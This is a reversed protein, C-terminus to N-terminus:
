CCTLTVSSRTRWVGSRSRPVKSTACRTKSGPHFGTRTARSTAWPTRRASTSALLGREGEVRALVKDLRKLTVDLNALNDLAQKSIKGSEFQELKRELQKM